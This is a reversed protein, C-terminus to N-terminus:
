STLFISFPIDDIYASLASVILLTVEDDNCEDLADLVIIAPSPFSKGEAISKRIPEIVLKQLQNSPDSYWIDPDAKVAEQMLPMLPQHFM